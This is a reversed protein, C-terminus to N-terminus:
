DISQLTMIVQGLLRVPRQQPPHQLAKRHYVTNTHHVAIHLRVVVHAVALALLANDLQAVEAERLRDAACAPVLEHAHVARRREHSRLHDLTQVIVGLHVSPREPDDNEQHQVAVEGVHRLYPGALLHLERDTQPCWRWNESRLNATPRRVLEDVGDGFPRVTQTRLEQIPRRTFPQRRLIPQRMLPKQCPRPVIRWRQLGHQLGGLEIPGEALRLLLHLLLLRRRQIDPDRSQLDLM